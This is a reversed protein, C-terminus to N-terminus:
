SECTVHDEIFKKVDADPAQGLVPADNNWLLCHYHGAGRAQYELRVFLHDVRGLPKADKLFKVLAEERLKFHRSVTVPDLVCLEGLTKGKEIDANVARLHKDLDQWAYDGASATVFWTPPGFARMMTRVEYYRHIWYQSTGRVNGLVSSLSRNMDQDNSQVMAILRGATPNKNVFVSQMFHYVGSMLAKLQSQRCSWFLYQPDRAFRRDANLFRSKCFEAEGLKVERTHFRGFRGNPYLHPFSLYETNDARADIIEGSAMLQEFRAIPEKDDHFDIPQVTFQEAIRLQDEDNIARLIAHAESDEQKPGVLDSEDLGAALALDSESSIVVDKYLHNFAKLKELAELVKKPRVFHQWVLGARTPLGNVVINLNEASITNMVKVNEQLPLPLHVITGRSARVMESPPRKGAKVGLRICTQFSKVQQILMLEFTNLDAIEQPVPDVCLDNLCARPPCVGAKLKSVCLDCIFNETTEDGHRHDLVEDFLKNGDLNIKDACRVKQRKQLINCCLCSFIPIDEIAKFFTQLEKAHTEILEQEPFSKREVAAIVSGKGSRKLVRKALDILGDLSKKSRALLFQGNFYDWFRRLSRVAVVHEFLGRLPLSHPSTQWLVCLRKTCNGVTACPYPYGRRYASMCQAAEDYMERVVNEVDCGAIDFADYIPRVLDEWGQPLRCYEDCYWQFPPGSKDKAKEDVDGEGEMKEVPQEDKDMKEAPEESDDKVHLHIIGQGGEDIPINRPSMDCLPFTYTQYFYPMATSRHICPELLTKRPPDDPSSAVIQLANTCKSALRDTRREMESLFLVQFREYVAAYHRALTAAQDPAMPPAEETEDRCEDESDPINRLLGEQVKGVIEDTKQWQARKKFYQAKASKRKTQGEDGGRYKTNSIKRKASYDESKRLKNMYAEQSAKIKKRNDETRGQGARYKAASAAVKARNEETRGQGARYKAASAAVKARNEDTRGQGARYKAASAAKRAQQDPEKFKGQRYKATSAAIRAQQELEKAKGRRYKATSAAVRAQQEPEKAKGRRYKATSAAVRAQQQPEKGKGQRYRHNRARRRLKQDDEASMM